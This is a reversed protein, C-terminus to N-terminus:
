FESEDKDKTNSSIRSSLKMMGLMFVIVALVTIIINPKESKQEYFAIFLSVLILPILIKKM